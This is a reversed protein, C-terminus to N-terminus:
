RIGEKGPLYWAPFSTTAAMLVYWRPRKDAGALLAGTMAGFDHGVFAIRDHDLGPQAALLDLARRLDIVQDTTM